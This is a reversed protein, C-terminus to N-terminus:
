SPKQQKSLTKMLKNVNWPGPGKMEVLIGETIYDADYNQGAWLEWRNYTVKRAVVWAAQGGHKHVDKLFKRQLPTLKLIMGAPRNIFKLEIWWSGYKGIVWIDAIGVLTRHSMTKSFIKAAKFDRHLETRFAKENNAM